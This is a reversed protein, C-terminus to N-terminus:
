KEEKPEDIYGTVPLPGDQEPRKAHIRNENIHQGANDWNSYTYINKGAGEGGM